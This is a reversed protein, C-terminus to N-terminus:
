HAARIHRIKADRTLRWFRRLETLLGGIDGPRLFRRRLGGCYRAAFRSADVYRQALAPSLGDVLRFADFFGSHLADWDHGQRRRLLVASVYKDVEAQIELEMPTVPRAFGANWTPYLFHSLGELVTCFDQLNADGLMQLPNERALRSLADADLYLSLDIGDDAERVLLAESSRTAGGGSLVGALAADTIVFDAARHPSRADYLGQLLRELGGLMDAQAPDPTSDRPHTASM